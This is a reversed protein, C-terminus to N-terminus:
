KWPSSAVVLVMLMWPVQIYHLNFVLCLSNTLWELAKIIELYISKSQHLPSAESLRAMLYKVFVSQSKSLLKHKSFFIRACSKTTRSQLGLRSNCGLLATFKSYLTNVGSKSDPFVVCLHASAEILPGLTRCQEALM